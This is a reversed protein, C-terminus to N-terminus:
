VALRAPFLLTQRSRAAKIKPRRSLLHTPKMWLDKSKKRRRIRRLAQWKSSKSTHRGSANYLGNNFDGQSNLLMSEFLNKKRIYKQQKITDVKVESFETLQAQRLAKSKNQQDFTKCIGEMAQGAHKLANQMMSFYEAAEEMNAFAHAGAAAIREKEYRLARVARYIDNRLGQEIQLMERQPLTFLTALFSEVEKAAKQKLANVKQFQSVKAQYCSGIVAYEDPLLWRGVPAPSCPQNNKLKCNGFPFINKNPATDGDHAAPLNTLRLGHDEVRLTSSASGMTCKLIAGDVCYPMKAGGAGTASSNQAPNSEKKMADYMKDAVCKEKTEM